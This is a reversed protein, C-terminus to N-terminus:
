GNLAPSNPILSGDQVILAPDPAEILALLTNNEDNLVPHSVGSRTRQFREVVDRVSGYLPEDSRLVIPVEGWSPAM